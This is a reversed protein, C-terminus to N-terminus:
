IAMGEGEVEEERFFRLLKERMAGDRVVVGFKELEDEGEEEDEEMEDDPDVLREPAPTPAILGSLTNVPVRGPGELQGLRSQM